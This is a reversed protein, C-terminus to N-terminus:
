NYGRRASSTGSRRTRLVPEPESYGNSFGDTPEAEQAIIEKLANLKDLSAAIRLSAEEIDLIPKVIDDDLDMVRALESLLQANGSIIALPNNIEHKVSAITTHLSALLTRQEVLRTQMEIQQRTRHQQMAECVRAPLAAVHRHDLEKRLCDSAGAKMVAVAVDDHGYGTLVIVPLRLHAAALAALVDFSEADPLTHAALVVDPPAEVFTRRAAALTSVRAVTAQPVAERFTQEIARAEATDAEVLLVQFTPADSRALGASDTM